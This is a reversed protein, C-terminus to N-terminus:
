LDDALTVASRRAELLEKVADSSDKQLKFASEASHKVEEVLDAQEKQLQQSKASSESLSGALDVLIDMSSESVKKSCYEFVEFYKEALLAFVVPSTEQRLCKQLASISGSGCKWNPAWAAPMRCKVLAVSLIIASEDGEMDCQIGLRKAYVDPYCDYSDSRSMGDSVEMGLSTASACGFILMFLSVIRLMCASVPRETDIETCDSPNLLGM